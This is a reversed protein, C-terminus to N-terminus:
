RLSANWFCYSKFLRTNTCRCKCLLQFVCHLYFFPAMALCKKPTGTRFPTYPTCEPSSPKCPCKGIGCPSSSTCKQKKPGLPTGGFATAVILVIILDPSFKFCFLFQNRKSPDCKPPTWLNKHLTFRVQDLFLHQPTFFTPSLLKQPEVCNTQVFSKPTLLKKPLINQPDFKEPTLLFTPCFHPPDVIKNSSLNQPTLLM